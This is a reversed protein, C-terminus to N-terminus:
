QRLIKKLIKKWRGWDSRQGAIKDPYSLIIGKDGTAEIVNEFEKKRTKDYGRTICVVLYCGRFSCEVGYLNM